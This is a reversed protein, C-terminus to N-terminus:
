DGATYKRVQPRDDVPKDSPGALHAEIFKPRRLKRGPGWPQQRWHGRVWWQSAYERGSGRRRGGESAVPSHAVDYTTVRVQPRRSAKREAFEQPVADDGRQRLTQTQVVNPMAVSRQQMLLWTAGIASLVKDKAGEAYVQQVAEDLIQTDVEDADVDKGYPADQPLSIEFMEHLPSNLSRQIASLDDRHQKLRSFFYIKIYGDKEPDDMWAIADIPVDPTEGRIHGVMPIQSPPKEWALFGKKAPQAAAPSWRPITTAVQAIVDCLKKDIWSLEADGISQFADAEEQSLYGKDISQDLEIFKMRCAMTKKVIYPLAWPSWEQKKRVM